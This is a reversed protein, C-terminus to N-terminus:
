AKLGMQGGPGFGAGLGKDAELAKKARQKEAWERSAQRGREAAEERSKKAAAERGRKEMELDELMKADRKYIEKARQRQVQAESTSFTRQMALGSM